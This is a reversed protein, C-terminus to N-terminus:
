QAKKNDLMVVYCFMSLSIQAHSLMRFHITIDCFANKSLYTTDFM